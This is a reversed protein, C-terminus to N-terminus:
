GKKSKKRVAITIGAALAVAACCIIVIIIARNGSSTNNKESNLPAANDQGNLQSDDSPESVNQSDGTINDGPAADPEASPEAETKEPVPTATAETSPEAEPGDTVLPEESPEETGEGEVPNEKLLTEIEYTIFGTQTSIISFYRLEEVAGVGNKQMERLISDYSFHACKYGELTDTYDPDVPIWWVANIESDLIIKPEGPGDYLIIIESGPKYWDEESATQIYTFEWEKKCERGSADAWIVNGGAIGKINSGGAAEGAKVAESGWEVEKPADVFRSIVTPYNWECTKRDIWAHCEGGSNGAAGNDWLIVPIGYEAGKKAMYYAWNERATTNDKNTAGTEGLVVPIGKNLLSSCIGNFLSDIQGTCSGDDLDFDMMKDSLCFDYPTYGHVSAILNNVTSGNYVPLELQKMISPSSSAAYQPIMLCRENNHGRGNARVTEAFVQNLYNVAAYAEKSGSWEKATGAMRPENMGEFILHMDYDAFYDAVQSWVAGLEEATSMYETDLDKKNVWSEHHVNIIVFLGCDYAYDVVERVRDLFAADITYNGDKSIHKEWTIPIRITKFGAAAIANILEPTVKPNGWSQEYSYINGSNGGTADFTNGLNWGIGMMETIKKASLGTLETDASVTENKRIGAMFLLALLVFVTLRIKRGFRKKGM